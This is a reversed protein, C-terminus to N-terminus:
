KKFQNLYFCGWFTHQEKSEIPHGQFRAQSGKELLAFLLFANKVKEIYQTDNSHLHLYYTHFQIFRKWSAYVMFDM